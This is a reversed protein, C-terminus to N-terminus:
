ETSNRRDVTDNFLKYPFTCHGQPDFRLKGSFVLTWLLSFLLMAPFFLMETFMDNLLVCCCCLVCCTLVASRVVNWYVHLKVLCLVACVVAISCFLVVVDWSFRENFLMESFFLMKFLGCKWSCLMKCFVILDWCKPLFTPDCFSVNGVACCRTFCLMQSPPVVNWLVYHCTLFFFDVNWLFVCHCKLFRLIECFFYVYLNWVVRSRLVCLMQSPADFMLTSCQVFLFHCYVRTRDLWLCSM